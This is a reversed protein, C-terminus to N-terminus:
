KNEKAMTSLVFKAMEVNALTTSEDFILQGLITKAENNQGQIDKVLAQNILLMGRTEADPDAALGKQIAELRETLDDSKGAIIKWAPAFTPFKASIAKAVQLKEEDSNMWEIQMFALYLGEQFKGEQEHKLSWHATKATFFGRPAMEDTMGYYKLANTFDQQLLYTYSLDYVPYTWDPALQHAEKLKRIALDYEGKGGHQRAEQHLQKAQPSINQEDMIQWNYEGTAGKLDSLFIKNGKADEFILGGTNETQSETKCSTLIVVITLFFLTKLTNM